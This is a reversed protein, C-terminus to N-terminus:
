YSCELLERIVATSFGRYQLYRAVKANDRDPAPFKLAVLRQAVAHEDVREIDVPVPLGRRRLRNCIYLHGYQNKRAYFGYVQCALRDDDIFREQRLLALVEDIVTDDAEKAQLKKRLEAESLFRRNLLRLALGYAETKNM